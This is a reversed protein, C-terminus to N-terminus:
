RSASRRRAYLINLWEVFMSFGMSFYLYARPVHYGFGDTILAMGILILFSLALMRLGPYMKIFHALSGSAVLMAMAGLIIATAMIFYEDVMGVATVVSDLSFVIDILMIQIIVLVFTHAGIVKPPKEETPQVAHHVENTGKVLLFLGGVILMLDRWSFDQGFLNLVSYTLGIIWAAMALLLLRTIVAFAIGTRRASQQQAVPLRSCTLTLFIMNDIGLVVELITLILLSIWAHPSTIDM